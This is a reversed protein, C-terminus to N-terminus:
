PMFVHACRVGLRTYEGASSHFSRALGFYQYWAVYGSHHTSTWYQGSPFGSGNYDLNTLFGLAHLNTEVNDFNAPCYGVYPSFECRAPLYWDAGLNKCINAAFSGSPYQTVLNATNQQGDSNDDTGLVADPYLGWAVPAGPADTEAISKYKGPILSDVAFVLGGGARFAIATTPAPTATNDGQISINGLAVFPKTSTFELSCTEGPLISACNHFDQEVKAAGTTWLTPLIAKVNLAPVLSADANKVTIILSGAPNVPIVREAQTPATISIIPRATVRVPLIVTNTNDGNIPINAAAGDTDSTFIIHCSSGAPLNTPCDNSVVTINGGMPPIATLNQAVMESSNTVTISGTSETTFTLSSTNLTLLVIPKATVSVPLIVTNTNDGNIPINAAAGDTDSTFLIHCSSGAPLNTPCDNSVVTINGGMPPIATLNQAVMESSNTVTVSGISEMAFTLSSTNLTLLVIPKATVSVPLTVTNTNSGHILINATAGGTNSTFLIHCSSGISLNTPCDNSVVTINGGMPPIATINQAALPYDTSNVITISGTSGATFTLSNTNLTLAASTVTRLNISLSDAQSPQACYLPYTVTNCVSPGGHIGGSPMNDAIIKLQLLCSDHPLLNFLPMACDNPGVPATQQLGSPINVLGTGYLAYPVNNTVRYTMHATQGPDITHPVVTTPTITFPPIDAIASLAFFLCAFVSSIRKVNLM